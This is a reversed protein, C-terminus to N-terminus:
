LSRKKTNSAREERLSFNHSAAGVPDGMDHLADFVTVFGYDKGPFDKAAAVSFQVNMIRQEKAHRNAAEISASHLDFGFFQSKPFVSKSM